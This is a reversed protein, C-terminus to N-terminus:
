DQAKGIRRGYRKEIYDAKLDAMQKERAYPDDKTDAIISKARDVWEKEILDEDNAAIPNNSTPAIPEVPGSIPTQLTPLQQVQPQQQQAPTLAPANGEFAKEKNEVIQPAEVSPMYQGESYQEPLVVPTEHSMQSPTNRPEM